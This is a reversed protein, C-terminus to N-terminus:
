GFPLKVSPPCPRDPRTDPLKMPLYTFPVPLKPPKKTCTPAEALPAPPDSSLWGIYATEPLPDGVEIPTGVTRDNKSLCKIILTTDGAHSIALPMTKTPGGRHPILTAESQIGGTGCVKWRIGYGLELEGGAVHFEGHSEASVSEIAGKPLRLAAVMHTGLIAARPDAAAAKPAVNVPLWGMPETLTTKPPPDKVIGALDLLCGDFRFEKKGDEHLTVFHHNADTAELKDDPFMVDIFDGRNIWLSLGHVEITICWGASETM